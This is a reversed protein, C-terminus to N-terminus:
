GRSGKALKLILKEAAEIATGCFGKKNKDDRKISNAALRDV